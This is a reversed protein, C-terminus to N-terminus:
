RLLGLDVKLSSDLSSKTSSKLICYRWRLSAHNMNGNISQVALPTKKDSEFQCLMGDSIWQFFLPFSQPLEYLPKNNMTDIILSTLWKIITNM